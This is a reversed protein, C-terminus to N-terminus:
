IKVKRFMLVVYDRRDGHRNPGETRNYLSWGDSKEVGVTRAIEAEDAHGSPTLPIEIDPRYEYEV